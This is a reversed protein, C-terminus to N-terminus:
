EGEGEAIMVCRVRDYEGVRTRILGSLYGGVGLARGIDRALSRIYVGPGTVVRLEMDPWAYSVVEIEKVEVERAALEVVEGARAYSYATRGKVKLASYIPPVQMIRGVFKRAAARVAEESPMAPNPTATKEGEEDGTSSEAGLRVSAIYEKEKAVADGLQKTSARGIGMVLVGSALPDLTGAHGVRREGSLRRVINVADHSSMGKPKWVGILGERPFASEM